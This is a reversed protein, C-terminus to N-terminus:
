GHEPRDLGQAGMDAALFTLYTPANDLMASLTGCAFYYGLPTRLQIAEGGALLQLAPIMTIFIGIFLWGVELITGVISALM